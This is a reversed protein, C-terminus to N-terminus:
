GASRSLHSDVPPAWARHAEASDVAMHEAEVAMYALEQHVSAAELAKNTLGAGPAVVESVATEPIGETEQQDALAEAAAAAEVVLGAESVEWDAEVALVTLDTVAAQDSDVVAVAPIM